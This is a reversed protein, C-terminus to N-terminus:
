ESVLLAGEEDYRYGAEEFAARAAETDVTGEGGTGLFPLEPDEGDWELDPPTWEPGVPAAIPEAYGEFVTEAVWRKDILRAVARRFHPNSFPASRVDFGVHYFARSPSEVVSTGEVGRIADIAYAELPRVTVDADGNEIIEIASTSRPDIRGRLREVTPEPLDVDERLTFHDDFREFSVRERESRGTFAFPGSGIPPVNDVVFAETTGQGTEFGPVRAPENRDEWVHEPLIPVTLAREGVVANTEIPLRITREDLREIAEVDIADARGRYIPAPTPSDGEGLTTDAIFRYTFEVDEATLREDDHFRVDERLTVELDGDDWEWSEALWPRLEGDIETALSDYLLDVFTGRDRYEAALPNLNASPRSDVVVARLLDDDELPDLGLYGLRTELHHAEWGDFRDSRVLRHEEPRCVPVFPQEAAFAGLTREVADEYEDDTATRQEELLEDFTLNSFGFPNQWGPEEAYRSYLAEYLYSPHTGHPFPGVYCDFDHTILVSRLFETGSRMDISVDVGAAELGDALHRALQIGERDGDASYSTISISLPSDGDRNVVNRM